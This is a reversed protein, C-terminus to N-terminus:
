GLKEHQGLEEIDPKPGRPIIIVVDDKGEGRMALGRASAYGWRHAEFNTTSRFVGRTIETDDWYLRRLWLHLNPYDHRIFKLNLNFITHYAWDFRILTTYLRIDAETIHKGFLFPQHDPTSLHKELRDLSDFLPEVNTDFAAQTTAFGCKYVGNNVTDYVWENMEDIASSLHKPYLGAAGKSEEKFKADILDDFETYLMRIIESSENNVITMTKKDFLCPVRFRGTYEPNALLYLEKLKTFGYVPDRDLSGHQGPIAGNFTWGGATLDCGLPVMQIADELSKLARVIITRHAWPCAYNVYLVYRDREAPYLSGADKSIWNQFTSEKRRFHGDEDAHAHTKTAM